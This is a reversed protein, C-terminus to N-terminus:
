YIGNYFIIFTWQIYTWYIGINMDHRSIVMEGNEGSPIKRDQRWLADVEPLEPLEPTGTASVV